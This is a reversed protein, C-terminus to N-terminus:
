EFQPYVKNPDVGLKKIAKELDKATMKKQLVAQYLVAIVINEKDVEFFRRLNERTESRGFGDTGLTFLSGPVWKAIQDPVLRMNDSVAVFYGTEKKLTKELYSVKKAKGPNLMNVRDCHIAESRLLKYNTASWIDTSIKYDDELIKQAELAPHM